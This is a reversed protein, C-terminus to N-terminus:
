KKDTNIRKRSTNISAVVIKLIESGESIIPQILDTHKENLAILLELFYITEDAEEEVIKLKNIFDADSKARRAASYNAGVSSSSRIIQSFYARNAITNPLQNILKGVSAAFDFTRIRLDTYPMLQYKNLFRM